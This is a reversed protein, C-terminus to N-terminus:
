SRVKCEDEKRHSAYMGSSLRGIQQEVLRTPIEYWSTALQPDTCEYGVLSGQWIYREVAQSDSERHHIELITVAEDEM